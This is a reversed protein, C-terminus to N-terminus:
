DGGKEKHVGSYMKNNYAIYNETIMGAGGIINPLQKFLLWLYGVWLFISILADGYPKFESYWGFSVLEPTGKGYSYGYPSRKNALNIKLSPPEGQEYDNFFDYLMNVYSYIGGIFNNDEVVERAYAYTEEFANYDESNLQAWLDKFFMVPYEYWCYGNEDIVDIGFATKINFPIDELLWVKMDIFFKIIKDKLSYGSEDVDFIGPDGLLSDYTNDKPITFEQHIESMFKDEYVAHNNFYITNFYTSASSWEFIYDKTLIGYDYIYINTYNFLFDYAKDYSSFKLYTISGEVAKLTYRDYTKNYSDIYFPSMAYCVYYFGTETGSVKTENILLVYPRKSTQVTWGNMPFFDGIDVLNDDEEIPPITTEEEAAYVPICSILFLFLSFFICLFKKM